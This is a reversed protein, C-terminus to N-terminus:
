QSKLYRRRYEPGRPGRGGIEDIREQLQEMMNHLMLIGDMCDKLTAPGRKARLRTVAMEISVEQTPM